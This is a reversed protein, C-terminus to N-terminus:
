KTRKCEKEKRKVFIEINRAVQKATAGGHLRYGGFDDPNQDNPVFLHAAERPTLGYFQESHQLEKCPWRDRDFKGGTLTAVGKVFRWSKPFAIPNEGIACGMFGCGNTRMEQGLENANVFQFNFEKHGLNGDRLHKAMKLLRDRHIKKM